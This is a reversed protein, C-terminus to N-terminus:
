KLLLLTAIGKFALTGTTDSARDYRNTIDGFAHSDAIVQYTGEATPILTGVATVALRGAADTLVSEQAGSPDATEMLADGEEIPARQIWLSYDNSPALGAGTVYVVDGVGFATKPDGGSDCTIFTPDGQASYVGFDELAGWVYNSESNVGCDALVVWNTGDWRYMLFTEEDIGAAGAEEDAYHLKLSIESWVIDPETASTDVQVFRHLTPRDPNEGPNHAYDAIIVEANAYDFDYELTATPSSGNALTVTGPGTALTVLGTGSGAFETKGSLCESAIGNWIGSGSGNLAAWTNLGTIQVDGTCAGSWGFDASINSGNTTYGHTDGLDANLSCTWTDPIPLGSLEFTAIDGKLWLEGAHVEGGVTVSGGVKASTGYWKGDSPRYIASYSFTGGIDGTVNVTVNITGGTAKRTAPNYTGNGTISVAGWAGSIGRDKDVYNLLEGGSSCAWVNGPSSGWVDQVRSPTGSVMRKWSVGNYHTISGRRGVAFIDSAATGWISELAESAGSAMTSWDAGDFHAIGGSYGSAWVKGAPSVWVDILWTPHQYVETWDHGDYHMVRGVGTSGGPNVAYVNSPSTGCIGVISAAGSVSLISDWTTGNFRRIGSSGGVLVNSASTGWVCYNIAYGPVDLTSWSSGDYQLVTDRGGVVFVNDASSGWVGTLHRTSGSPQNTWSEGDYHLITGGTGVAFVNNSASGWLGTLSQHYGPNQRVLTWSNSLDAGAPPALLLALFLSLSLIGRHLHIRVASSM